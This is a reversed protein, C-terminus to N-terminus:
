WSLQRLYWGLIPEGYIYVILASMALFVGLPLESKLGRKKLALLPLSVGAGIFYAILIAPIIMPWGFFFGLIAGLRIDGGGIWRGRSVLYQLGFFGAGIIGSIVLNKWDAGTALNLGLVLVAAPLTVIDPLIM